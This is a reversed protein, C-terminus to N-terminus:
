LFNTLLRQYVNYSLVVDVVDGLVAVAVVVVVVFYKNRLQMQLSFPADERFGHPM